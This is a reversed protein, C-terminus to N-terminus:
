IGFPLVVTKGFSNSSALYEHALRTESLKYIKEPAVDVNNKEIFKLMDNLEKEKVDGSYFSTLYCNNPIKIIPDFNNLTWVGGLQGTSCVIGYTNLKQLSDPVTKPGIIDLIRDFKMDTQLAGNDIIVKDFGVDLLMKEKKSSRSTGIVKLEQFMAKALKVAAIGVGSTAGRILLSQNPQINLGILSGYATYYTEPVAALKEWSLDTNIPYIQNNPLLVYEAYGGDFERGMEGMISIIKQGIPLRSEDSSEEITGVAEIGLVRPFTVSPSKGERTFIESHNIGFGRVKVLSWGSKIKPTPIDKYELVEPGGPNNVVIAKM